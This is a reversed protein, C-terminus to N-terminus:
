LEALVELTAKGAMDPLRWHAICPLLCCLDGLALPRRISPPLNGAASPIFWFPSL